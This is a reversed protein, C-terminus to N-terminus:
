LYWQYERDSIHDLFRRTERRKTECYLALYEAGLVDALLASGELRALASGQDLPLSPDPEACANGSAEPGPDLSSELGHRAGALVAALVLYPNADAGPVRFELRRSGADGAPVRVAVSRNNRGWSANVPVFTGPVFRRFSNVNPAYLAMAEPLMRLLGAAAHRLAREGDERAAFVNAGAADLLSLHLHMGSGTREAFPKAMFTARLGHRRAVSQVARRFLAAHDAARVADAVHRLNIEFQGAAYESTTVSAPIGQVECAGHVADLFEEAADVERLRYVQGLPEAGAPRPAGAEDHLLYFELEFACCASLGLADLRAQERLAAQRPDAAAAAGGDPWPAMLVQAGRRRAWPVPSLTGPLPWCCADPDGDSIGRGLPDLCAGTVDLFWSSMPFPMGRRFLSEIEGRPYRKGRAEGTLDVCLADIWATGPNLALFEVLESRVDEAHPPEHM